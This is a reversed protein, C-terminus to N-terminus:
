MSNIVRMLRKLKPGSGGAQERARESLVQKIRNMCLRVKRKRQPNPMTRAAAKAAMRETELKNREVLCAHWLGHLDGWSKRRLEEAEWARGEKQDGRSTDLFKELGHEGGEERKTALGRRLVQTASARGSDLMRRLM